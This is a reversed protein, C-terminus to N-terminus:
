KCIITDNKEMENMSEVIVVTIDDQAKSPALKFFAEMINDLEEQLDTYGLVAQAINLFGAEGVRNKQVSVSETLADSYVLLKNKPMFDTKYETYEAGKSIGLPLGQTALMHISNETKLFPSPSGAGAYKLTNNKMDFVGFFVTAFQGRPLLKVLHKNLTKLFEAPEKIRKGMQYILTHIRFTNLASALGHGSFDCMCLAFKKNGLPILQWFDGGLWDSPEFYSVINANYNKKIHEISRKEPLLKKQMEQVNSLETYVQNLSKTLSKVLQNNELHVCVRAFFELPNIPKTIYDSAGAKFTRDRIERTDTETQILVPIKSTENVSKLRQLVEYGDMKPIQTDLIILDPEFSLVKHLAEIGDEAIEIKNVGLQVLLGSLLAQNSKSYEVILVKSESLNTKESNNPTAMLNQISKSKKNEKLFSLTIERGYNDISCSDVAHAIIQIGRGSKPASKKESQKLIQALSYGMGEDKIKIELKSKNWMAMISIAKTAYEPTKLRKDILDSYSLVGKTTERMVSSLELNGHLLGNVLSEHLALHIAKRREDSYKRRVQLSKTFFTAVDHKYVTPGTLLVAMINPYKNEKVEQVFDKMSKPAANVDIVGKIKHKLIDSLKEETPDQILVYMDESFDETQDFTLGQSKQNPWLKFKLLRAIKAAKESPVSEEYALFTTEKTITKMNKIYKIKKNFFLHKLQKKDQKMFFVKSKLSKKAISSKM